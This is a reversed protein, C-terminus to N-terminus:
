RPVIKIGTFKTPDKLAKVPEIYYAANEMSVNGIKLLGSFDSVVGGDPSNIFFDIVKRNQPNYTVLLIQGSREFSNDWVKFKMKMQLKTPEPDNDIPNGLVVRLQDINNGILDPVNFVAKINANKIEIEHENELAERQSCKNLFYVIVCVLIIINLIKKM